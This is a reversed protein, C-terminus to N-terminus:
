GKLGVNEARQEVILVREGPTFRARSAGLTTPAYGRREGYGVFGSEYGKLYTGSIMGMQYSDYNVISILSSVSSNKQVTKESIKYEIQDNTKLESLFRRV